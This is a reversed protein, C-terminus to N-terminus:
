GVLKLHLDRNQLMEAFAEASWGAEWCHRLERQEEATLMPENEGVPRTTANLIQFVSLQWSLRGVLLHSM